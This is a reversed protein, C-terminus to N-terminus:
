RAVVAAQRTAPQALGLRVHPKSKWLHGDLVAEEDGRKGVKGGWQKFYFPVYAAQCQDKLSRAWAEAMPRAHPGSEGGVIVWHVGQLDLNLPGLLPECSLFRVSAPVRRLDDIRGAYEQSEVTVGMWVNSPWNLEAAIQTLRQSRKTLVQFTHWPAATMTAFVHKIFELPIQEHFLDSM